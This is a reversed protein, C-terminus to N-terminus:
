IKLEFTSKAVYCNAQYARLALNMNVAEQVGFGSELAAVMTNDLAHASNKLNNSVEAYLDTTEPDSYYRSFDPQYEFPEAETYAPSVTATLSERTPLTDIGGILSLYQSSDIPAVM